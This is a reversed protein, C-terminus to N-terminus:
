DHSAFYQYIARDRHRANAVNRLGEACARKGEGGDDDNKYLTQALLFHQEANDYRDLRLYTAGINFNLDADPEDLVLMLDASTQFWKLAKNLSQEEGLTTDGEAYYMALQIAAQPNSLAAGKEVWAFQARRDIGLSECV